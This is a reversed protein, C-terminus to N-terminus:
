KNRRPFAGGTEHISAIKCLHGNMSESIRAVDNGTLLGEIKILYSLNHSSNEFLSSGKCILFIRAYYLSIFFPTSSFLLYTSAKVSLEAHQFPALIRKDFCVESSRMPVLRAIM